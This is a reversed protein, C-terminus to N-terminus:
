SNGGENPETRFSRNNNNQLVSSITLVTHYDLPPPRFM